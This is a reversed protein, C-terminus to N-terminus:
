DQIRKLCHIVAKSLRWEVSKVSLGCRTAIEEYTLGDFRSLVFVDRYAVPISLITEKLLLDDMPNSLVAERGPGAQVHEVYRGRVSRRRLLDNALNTAVKLLLAKPRRFQAPDQPALRIYTEQVLDDAEADIGSGFRRRLMAGLWPAYRRYLEDLADREAWGGDPQTAARPLNPDM